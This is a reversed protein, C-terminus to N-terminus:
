MNQTYYNYDKIVIGVFDIPNEKPEVQMVNVIRNHLQVIINHQGNRKASDYLNKITQMESDKFVTVQSYTPV